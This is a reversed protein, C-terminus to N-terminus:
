RIIPWETLGSVWQRTADILQTGGVLAPDPGGTTHDAIVRAAFLAEPDGQDEASKLPPLRATSDLYGRLMDFAGPAKTYGLDPFLLTSRQIIDTENRVRELVENLRQGDGMRALALSAAWALDNQLASGQEPFPPGAVAQLTPGAARADALGIVRALTPSLRSTSLATLADRDMETFDDRKFSLLLRLSLDHPYDIQTQAKGILYGIAATRDAPDTSADGARWVEAILDRMLDEDAGVERARARDVLIHVDGGAEVRLANLEVQRAEHALDEDGGAMGTGKMTLLLCTLAVAGTM